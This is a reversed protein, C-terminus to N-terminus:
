KNIPLKIYDDLKFIINENNSVYIENINHDMIYLKYDTLSEIKYNEINNLYYLLFNENIKNNVVYYNFKDNCLNIKIIKNNKIEFLNVTIFKFNTITYNFNIPISYYIIKNICTNDNLKNDSYICFDFKPIENELLKLNNKYTKYVIRGNQIFEIDYPKNIFYVLLKNLTYNIKRIFNIYILEIRSYYYICNYSFVIFEEEIYNPFLLYISNIISVIIILINLYGQMYQSINYSIKLNNLKLKNNNFENL